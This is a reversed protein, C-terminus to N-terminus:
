MPLWLFGFALALMSEYNKKLKDYRSAIARFHVEFFTLFFM